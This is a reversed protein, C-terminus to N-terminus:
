TVWRAAAAGLRIAVLGAVGSGLFNVAALGLERAELLRDTEFALTSFTTFGGCFGVALLLRWKPDFAFREMTAAVVLAMAFSGVVNVLFTGWPFGLPLHRAALGGVAYRACSGVAGGLAVLLYRNAEDM